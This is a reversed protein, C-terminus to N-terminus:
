LYTRRLFKEENEDQSENDDDSTQLDDVKLSEDLPDDIESSLFSDDLFDPDCHKKEPCEPFMNETLTAM